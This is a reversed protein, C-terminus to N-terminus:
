QQFDQNFTKRVEELKAQTLPLRAEETLLKTRINLYAKQADELAIAGTAIKGSLSDLSSAHRMHADYAFQFQVADKVLNQIHAKGVDNQEGWKMKMSKVFEFSETYAPTYQQTIKQAALFDTLIQVSLSDPRDAPTIVPISINDPTNSDGSATANNNNQCNALLFLSLALLAFVSYRM